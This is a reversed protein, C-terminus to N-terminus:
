RSAEVLCAQPDDQIRAFPQAEELEYALELLTREDGLDASFHVGIPLGLSSRGLPLSMAPAGAANHLPTFAVYTRLREFLEDFDLAPSLYGIQPTTHSLVPSLIVDYETFTARYAKTSARLRRIMGPTGLLERRFKAALGRTLNDTRSADFDPDFIWRGARSVVSGLLGWYSAFDEAFTDPVPPEVEEVRHGLKALLDAAALVAERTEDDTVAGSTSDTLVGVRLRTTSPGEVLRIPPLRKARRYVEAGAFFRATDRVTRTLVGQGVINVPMQKESADMVMRGRTPKLGVLGCAAAPIRISGGGDNAHALPVVGAAVLAASGGSSAGASYGPHWPNRVPAARVYETSASFGFEPLRSKGLVAFGMSRYQQVFPSDQKAPKAAFAETGQNTPLGKVDVNDKIFTPVGAFMADPRSPSSSRGSDYDPHAVANIFPQMAEARRIAADRIETPDLDGTRIRAALETADHDGLADDTFAHVPRDTGGDTGHPIPGSSTGDTM